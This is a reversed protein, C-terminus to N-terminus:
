CNVYRISNQSGDPLWSSVDSWAYRAELEPDRHAAFRWRGNENREWSDSEIRFAARVIGRYVSLAIEPRRSPRMVWWERTYRYMDEDSM